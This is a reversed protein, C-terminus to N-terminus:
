LLEVIDLMELPQGLLLNSELIREASPNISTLTGNLDTTIMGSGMSEVVNKYLASLEDAAAVSKSLNSRLIELRKRITAVVLTAVLIQLTTFAILWLQEFHQVVGVVGLDSLSPVIDSSFLGLCMAYMVISIVGVGVTTTIGVYFASALVPFVYLAALGAKDVGHFSVLLAVLFCLLFLNLFIWFRSPVTFLTGSNMSSRSTEVVSEVFLASLFICVGM